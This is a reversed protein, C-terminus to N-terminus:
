AHTHHPVAARFEHRDGDAAVIPAANFHHGAELRRIWDDDIWAVRQDAPGVNLHMSRGSLVSRSSTTSAYCFPHQADRDLAGILALRSSLLLPVTPWVSGDRHAPRSLRPVSHRPRLRAHTNVCRPISTREGTKEGEESLYPQHAFSVVLERDLYAGTLM